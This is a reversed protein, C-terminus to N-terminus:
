VVMLTSHLAYGEGYGATHVHLPCEDVGSATHVQLTYGEGSGATHIYM